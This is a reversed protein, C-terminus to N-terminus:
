EYYSYKKDIYEKWKNKFIKKNKRFLKYREKRSSSTAENHYVRVEPQYYVKLGLEKVKLCLDADEYYGNGYIKDFGGVKNFIDKKILLCTGTCYDVERAFSYIRNDPNDRRGFGYCSGDRWITCGASQLDGNFSILKPGVIGAKYFRMASILASLWNETVITDNNLFLLYKGRAYRAGQNCGSAFGMNKKNRILIVNKLNTIFECTSDDSGNDIVIIEYPVATHKLVSDLCQHTFSIKNLTLIIISVLPEKFKKFDNAFDEISGGTSTMLPMNKNVKKRSENEIKFNRSFKKFFNKGKEQNASIFSNYIARLWTGEPIIFDLLGQYSMLLRWTLSREMGRIREWLVRTEIERDNLLAKLKNLEQKNEM